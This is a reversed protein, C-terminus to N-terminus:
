RGLAAGAQGESRLDRAAATCSDSTQPETRHQAVTSIHDRPIGARALDPATRLAVILDQFVGIIIKGM